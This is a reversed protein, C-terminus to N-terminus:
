GPLNDAHHGTATDGIVLGSPNGLFDNGTVLFATAGDDVQCGGGGSGTSRCGTITTHESRFGVIIGPYGTPLGNAIFHMACVSVDTGDTALGAQRAGSSFGGTFSVSQVGKDIYVNAFDGFTGHLQSDNFFMRRGSVLRVAEHNCFDSELDFFALFTPPHTAGVSNQVLLGKGRMSVLHVSTGIVTHVHGDIELGNTGQPLGPVQEEAPIGIGSLVLRTAAPSAPM